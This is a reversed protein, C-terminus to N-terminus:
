AKDIIWAEQIQSMSALTLFTLNLSLSIFDICNWTQSFYASPGDSVFSNGELSAFMVFFCFTATTSIQAQLAIGYDITYEKGDFVAQNKMEVEVLYQRIASSCIFTMLLLYIIYPIFIWNTIAMQYHENWMYQILIKIGVTTLCEPNASDNLIIILNQLNDGEFIWDFEHAVVSVRNINSDDDNVFSVNLVKKRLQTKM